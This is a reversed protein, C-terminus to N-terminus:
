TFVQKLKLCVWFSQFYFFWFFGWRMNAESFALKNYQLYFIEEYVKFNTDTIM